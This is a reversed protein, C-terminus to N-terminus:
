LIYTIYIYVHTIQKRETASMVRSKQPRVDSLGSSNESGGSAGAGASASMGLAWATLYGRLTRGLFPSYIFYRALYNKWNISLISQYIRTLHSYTYYIGFLICVFNYICKNFFFMYIYITYDTRHVFPFCWWLSVMEFLWRIGDQDWPPVQTGDPYPQGFCRSLGLHLQLPNQLDM